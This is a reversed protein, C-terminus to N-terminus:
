ILPIRGAKQTLPWTVTRTGEGWAARLGPTYRAVADVGTGRQHAVVSSWTRLYGLFAEVSWCATMATAPFAVPPLDWVLHEYGADLRDRGPPWFSEVDALLPALAADVAPTIHAFTYGWLIVPAGPRGVRRCEAEFRPLDFWHAAQAVTIADVSADALGSAEATGLAYTVRPHPAANALQAAAGDTALVRDFHAALALAAQGNGTACDWVVGRAPALAAVQAFLTEPYTPRFRAYDAAQTSFHDAFGM